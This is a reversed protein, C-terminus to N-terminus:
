NLDALLFDGLKISKEIGKKSDNTRLFEKLYKLTTVSYDWSNEDLTIKSGGNPWFAIITQYSQFYEGEDTTIIFQNAVPNGTRPSVM